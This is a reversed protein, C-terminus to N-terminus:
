AIPPRFIAELFSNTEEVQYPTKNIVKLKDFSNSDNVLITSLHSGSCHGCHHCDKENHPEGTANDNSHSRDNAHDHQTQLHEIDIQHSESTASAVATLSQIVISIVLIIRLAVTSNM